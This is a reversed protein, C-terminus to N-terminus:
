SDVPGSFVVFVILLGAFVMCIYAIVATFSKFFGQLKFRSALIFVVALFMLGIAGLAIWMKILGVSM